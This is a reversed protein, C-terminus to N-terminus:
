HRANMNQSIQNWILHPHTNVPNYLLINKNNPTLTWFSQLDCAQLILADDQCQEKVRKEETNRHWPGDRDGSPTKEEWAPGGRATAGRERREGMAGDRGM